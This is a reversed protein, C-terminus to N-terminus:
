HKRLLDLKLRMKVDNDVFLTGHYQQVPHIESGLLVASSEPVSTDGTPELGMFVKKFLGNMDRQLQLQTTTKLGYGFISVTPVSFQMGLEAVLYDGMRKYQEITVLNPVIVMKNLVGRAELRTDETYRFINPHKFIYPVNPWVRESGLWLEPGMMGPVFIVPSLQPGKRFDLVDAITMEEQAFGTKFVIQAPGIQFTDGNKLLHREVRQSGIWTGNTSDLDRLIFNSGKREIRAHQRSIKLYDLTLDSATTRGM